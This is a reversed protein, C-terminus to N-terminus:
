HNAPNLIQKILHM